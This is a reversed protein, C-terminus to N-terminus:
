YIESLWSRDEKLRKYEEKDGFDGRFQSPTMKIVRVKWNKQRIGTILADPIEIEGRESYELSKLVEFIERSFIFIGCNNLNSTKYNKPPKEIMNIVHNNECFIACGKHLNNLYNAVLIFDEKEKKFVEVIQKYIKYPVLIDGWTLFFHNEQILHECFLVAGGTGNLPEQVVYDIQVNWKSGNGFYNIIQEKKYGVVIIIKKFGAKILGQIIYELLPKDHVPIMTKQYIDTYPKMRVGKGAALVIAKIQNNKM